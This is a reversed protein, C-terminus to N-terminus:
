GSVKAHSVVLFSALDSFVPAPAGFMGARSFLALPQSLGTEVRLKGGSLLWHDVVGHVAEAEAAPMGARVLDRSPIPNAMITFNTTEDPHGTMPVNAARRMLDADDTSLSAATLTLNQYFQLGTFGAAILASPDNRMGATALQPLMAALQAPVGGFAVHLKLTAMDKFDGDADITLSQHAPDADIGFAIDGKLNTYGLSILNALFADHTERVIAVLPLNAAHGKLHVGVIAGAERRIDTVTLEGFTAIPHNSADRIVVDQLSTAGFASGSVGSYSVHGALGTAALFGSVSQQADKTAQHGAYIWGGGGLLLLGATTMLLARRHRRVLNGRLESDMAMTRAASLTEGVKTRIEPARAVAVGAAQRVFAAAEGGVRELTARMEPALQPGGGGLVDKDSPPMPHTSPPLLPASPPLLLLNQQMPKSETTM